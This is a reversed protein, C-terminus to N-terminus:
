IPLFSVPSYFFEFRMPFKIPVALIVIMLITIVTEALGVLLKSFILIIRPFYMKRVLQQNALVVNGANNVMFSFNNWILIGSLAFLPYHYNVGPLHILRDFVLTFLGLVMLPRLLM